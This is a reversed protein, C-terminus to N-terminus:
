YTEFNILELITKILSSEFVRYCYEFNELEKKLRYTKRRLISNGFGAGLRQFDPKRKNDPPLFCFEKILQSNQSSLWPQISECKYINTKNSEIFVKFLENFQSQVLLALQRLEADFVENLPYSNCIISIWIVESSFFGTFLEDLDIFM